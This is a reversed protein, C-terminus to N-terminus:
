MSLCMLVPIREMKSSVVRNLIRWSDGRRIHEKNQVVVVVLTGMIVAIAAVVDMVVVIVVMEIVIVEVEVEMLVMAVTALVPIAMKLMVDVM